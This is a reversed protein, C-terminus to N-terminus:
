EENTLKIDEHIFLIKFSLSTEYIGEGGEESISVASFSPYYATKEFESVFTLIASISHARVSITVSGQNIYPNEVEAATSQLATSVNISNVEIGSKEAIKQISNILTITNKNSPHYKEIIKLRESVGKQNTTGVYQSNLNSVTEFRDNLFTLDQELLTIESKRQAVISLTPTIVTSIIIIIALLTIGLMTYSKQMPTSVFIKRVNKQTDIKGELKIKELPQTSPKVVKEQVPAKKEQKVPKTDM